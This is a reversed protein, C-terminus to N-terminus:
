ADGGLLFGDGHLLSAPKQRQGVLDSPLLEGTLFLDGQDNATLLYQLM